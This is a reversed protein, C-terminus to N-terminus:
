PRAVLSRTVIEGAAAEGILRALGQRAVRYPMFGRGNSAALQRRRQYERNFFKLEGAAQAQTLGAEIRAVAATAREITHAHTAIRVRLKAAAQLVPLAQERALRLLGAVKRECWWHQTPSPTMASLRTLM